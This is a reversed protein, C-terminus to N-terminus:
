CCLVRKKSGHLALAMGRFMEVVKMNIIIYKEFERQLAKQCLLNMNTLEEITPQRELLSFYLLDQEEQLADAFLNPHLGHEISLFSSGCQINSRIQVTLGFENM